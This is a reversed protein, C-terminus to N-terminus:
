KASKLDLKIENVGPKIEETLESKSNFKEPFLNATQEVEEDQGYSGKQRIKGIVKRGDLEIRYKGPPVRVQFRGDKISAGERVLDGETKVFTITADAVPQGDLAVTGSVTTKGDGCGSLAAFLFLGVVGVATRKM